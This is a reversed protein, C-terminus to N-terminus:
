GEITIPGVYYDAKIMWLPIYRDAVDRLIHEKFDLPNVDDLIRWGEVIGWRIIQKGIRFDMSGFFMDLYLEKLAIGYKDVDIVRLNKIKPEPEGPGPPQIFTFAKVPAITGIDQFDYALDYYAWARGSLKFNQNFSYSPELQIINLIKAFAPPSEYRYATENKLYGRVEIDKLIEENLWTLIGRPPSTPVREEMIIQPIQPVVTGETPSLAPSETQMGPQPITEEFAPKVEPPSVQKLTGEQGPLQIEETQVKESSESPTSEEGKVIVPNFFLISGVMVIVFLFSLSFKM